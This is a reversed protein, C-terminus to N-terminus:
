SESEVLRELFYNAYYNVPKFGFCIEVEGIIGDAMMFYVTVNQLDCCIHNKMKILEISEMNLLVKYAKEMEEAEKVNIKARIVDTMM